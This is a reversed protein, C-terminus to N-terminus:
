AGESKIGNCVVGDQCDHFVAVPSVYQAKEVGPETGLVKGARGEGTPVVVTGM